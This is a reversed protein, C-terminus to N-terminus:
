RIPPVGLQDLFRDFYADTGLAQRLEREAAARQKQPDYIVHLRTSLRRVEALLMLLKGRRYPEVRCGPYIDDELALEIMGILALIHKGTSQQYEFASRPWSAIVQQVREREEGAYAALHELSGPTPRQPAPEQDPSEVSDSM